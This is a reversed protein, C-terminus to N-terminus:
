SLQRVVGQDIVRAHQFLRAFGFAQKCILSNPMINQNQANATWAAMNPVFGAPRNWDSGCNNGPGIRVCM